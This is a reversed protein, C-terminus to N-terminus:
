EVLSYIIYFLYLFYTIKYPLRLLVNADRLYRTNKKVIMKPKPRVFAISDITKTLGDVCNVNLPSKISM